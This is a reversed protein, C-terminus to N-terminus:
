TYIEGVRGAVGGRGKILLQLSSAGAFRPFELEREFGACELEPKTRVRARDSRSSVNVLLQM